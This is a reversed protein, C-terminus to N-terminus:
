ATPIFEAGCAPCTMLKKQDLQEQEDEGVPQFASVTKALEEDSFWPKLDLGAALDAQLQDADWELGVETTRNDFYALERARVDVALDLDTRQVVVIKTGDTPVIIADELGIVAAGELTKNGAIVVGHKDV